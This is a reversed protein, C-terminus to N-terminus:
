DFLPSMAPLDIPAMNPRGIKITTGGTLRVKDAVVLDGMQPGTGAMSSNGTLTLTGVPVYITGAINVESGGALSMGSSNNPSQTIVVGATAGSAPPSLVLSSTGGISLAGGMMVLTVGEGRISGASITLGQQFYYVGPAMTITANGTVKLEGTYNGPELTVETRRNITMGARAPAQASAPLVLNSMPNAYAVASQHVAGTCRSGGSFAATGVIYLHPTDLVAAGVTSVAEASSSNVYVANTPVSISSNGTMSLASAASPNLVVLGASGSGAASMAAGASAALCLLGSVTTGIVRKM